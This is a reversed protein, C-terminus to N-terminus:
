SKVIQRKPEITILSEEKCYKCFAPFNRLKTDRRLMVLKPNGCKPCTCWYYGQKMM